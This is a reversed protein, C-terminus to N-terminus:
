RPAAVSARPRLSSAVASSMRATSSPVALTTGGRHRQSRLATAAAVATAARHVTTVRTQTVLLGRSCSEARDRQAGREVLPQPGRQLSRCNASARVASSTNTTSSAIATSTSSTRGHQPSRAPRVCTASGPAGAPSAGTAARRQHAVQRQQQEHGAQREEGDRQGIRLGPKVRSSTDYGPRRMARSTSAEVLMTM